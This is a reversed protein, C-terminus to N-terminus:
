FAMQVLLFIIVDFQQKSRRMTACTNGQNYPDHRGSTMGAKMRWNSPELRVYLYPSVFFVLQLNEEILDRRSLFFQLLNILYSQALDISRLKKEKKLFFRFAKSKCYSNVKKSREFYIRSQLQTHFQHSLFIFDKVESRHVRVYRTSINKLIYHKLYKKSLFLKPLTPRFHVIFSNVEEFFSIIM